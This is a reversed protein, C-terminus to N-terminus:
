QIHRIISNWEEATFYGRVNQGSYSSLLGTFADLRQTESMGKYATQHKQMYRFTSRIPAWGIADKIKLFRHACGYINYNQSFDGGLRDYAEIIGAGTFVTAADFESPVAQAGNKELVYAVKFDTMVEAEFNWPRDYDFIHGMEHLVCFNWDNERAAMKQLDERIFTDDVHIINTGNVYGIYECPKYAEVVLNDYPKFGTLDYFSGFAIELDNAWKQLRSTSIVETINKPLQLQIIGNKSVVQKYVESTKNVAKWQQTKNKSDRKQLVAKGNRFGLCYSTDAASVFSYTGNNNKVMKWQQVNYGTYEWLKITTGPAVYANDIDLMLNTNYGYVHFNKNGIDKLEWKKASATQRLTRNTYSLYKGTKANRFAYIGAQLPAAPKKMSLTVTKTKLKKGYKDKVICYVKRGATKSTIKVSYSKSKAKPAKVFKKANKDKYYWSYKLGDGKAKVSVKATTNQYVAKSAPQTIIKLPTRTAAFATDPDFGGFFICAIILISLIIKHKSKYRM